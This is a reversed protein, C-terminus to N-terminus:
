FIAATAHRQVCKVELYQGEVNPCHGYLHEFCKQIAYRRSGSCHVKLTRQMRSTVAEESQEEDACLPIFQATRSESSMTPPSAGRYWAQLLHGVL